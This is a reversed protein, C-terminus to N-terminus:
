SCGNGATTLMYGDPGNLVLPNGVARGEIDTYTHPPLTFNAQVNNAPVVVALGRSFKRYYVSGQVQYAGCPSGIQTAYESRYYQGGKQPSTFFATGGNNGLAYTALAWDAQSASLSNTCPIVNDGCFYDLPFIALHHQQAYQMWSLTETFISLSGSGLYSGYHTFGNEDLLGDVYQLAAAENASPLTDNLAHNMLIHFHYAAYTTNFMQRAMALWNIEDNNWVSDNRNYLPGTYIRNFSGDSNYTGCAYWGPQFSANDLEPNPARGYNEFIINDVALTNYGNQIMYNALLNVQYRVVNPNHIDLPVDGFNTNFYPHDHTPNGNNDCAYLIWGPDRQQWCQLNCNSLLHIDENPLVYRSLIINPQNNLWYSPQFSAWVADTHSAEATIQQPTMTRDSIQIFSFRGSTDPLITIAQTTPTPM